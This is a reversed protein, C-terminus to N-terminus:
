KSMAIYQERKVEAKKQWGKIISKNKTQEETQKNNCHNM